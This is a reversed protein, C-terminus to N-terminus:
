FLKNLFNDTISELKVCNRVIEDVLALKSTELEFKSRLSADCQCVENM